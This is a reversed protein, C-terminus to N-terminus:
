QSQPRDHGSFIELVRRASEVQATSIGEVQKQDNALGINQLKRLLERGKDQVRFHGNEDKSLLLRNMLQGVADEVDTPAVFTERSLRELTSNPSLLLQKLVRSEAPSLGVAESHEAFIESRRAYAERLLSMFTPPNFDNTNKVVSDPHEVAASYRGQSFVLPRRGFRAFQLVRGVIVIHDGGPHCTERACELRACVGHILPVGAHGYGWSTGSFKDGGSSAFRTAVDVQNSALINVAFHEAEAFIDLGSSNRSLSWLILPPEMSVSSFSNVTAGVISGARAATVVTVGTPFCGLARRFAKGTVNPDGTEVVAEDDETLM